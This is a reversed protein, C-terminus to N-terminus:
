RTQWSLQHPDTVPLVITCCGVPGAAQTTWRGFGKKDDHEGFWSNTLHLFQQLYSLICRLSSNRKHLEAKTAELYRHKSRQLCRYKALVGNPSNPKNCMLYKYVRITAHEEKFEDFEERSIGFIGGDHRDSKHLVDFFLAFSAQCNQNTMPVIMLNTMLNASLDTMPYSMFNIILDTMPDAIPDAKARPTLWLTPWSTPWPTPRWMDSVFPLSLSLMLSLSLGLSKHGELCQNCNHYDSNMVIM